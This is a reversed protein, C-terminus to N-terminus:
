LTAVSILATVVLASFLLVMYTAGLALYKLLTRPRSEGYYRRMSAFLYWGLYVIVAFTLLNELASLAPIAGVLLVGSLLLFAVSHNHVFFLLHEVFHRRRRLYLCKMLLALLPLVVFLARPINHLLVSILSRGQDALSKRCGARLRPEMSSAWPGRYQIQDCLRAAQQESTEQTTTDAGLDSADIIIPTGNRGLLGALLFFIISVVLYLRVAPLYRERRGLFYDQTVLGPRTLLSRLTRWLRTDAHTIGETAERLFHWLSRVHREDKQGCHACFRGSLLSGCNLCSQSSGRYLM